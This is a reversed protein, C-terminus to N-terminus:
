LVVLGLSLVMVPVMVAGMCFLRPVNLLYPVMGLATALVLILLGFPGCLLFSLLVVFLIVGAQLHPSRLVSLRAASGGLRITILYAACAALCGALLVSTFPPLETLALAAMVGNRTRSLAYLAALGLFANATNSASAALLYGRRDGEYPIVSALLANATATSLGPLWGVVAGAVSGLLSQFAIGRGELALGTFRQPPIGGSGATLLVPIGFLGSLLPMLIAPSGLGIWSLYDHALTFVGLLGSAAFVAFALPPSEAKVILFGSVALIVVGIWIDLFPQLPPLLLLFVLTLPLSLIVAMASGLGGIRVAEEGKGELCLAHAPLVALATDADPIGLFTSPIIDLFTHTVLAAFLAAGLAEPGFVSALIAEGGLLVSAMTNAHVGPVLGSVTGIAVGLVTGALLSWMM